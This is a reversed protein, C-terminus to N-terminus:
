TTAIAVITLRSCLMAPEATIAAAYRNEATPVVPAPRAPKTAETAPATTPADPQGCATFLLAFAATMTGCLLKFAM